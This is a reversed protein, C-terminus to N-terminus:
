PAYPWLSASMFSYSCKWKWPRYNNDLWETPYEKHAWPNYCALSEQGERDGPTQELEHGNFQHHWGVMENETAGKEEQEWNKGADPQKGILSSVPDDEKVFWIVLTLHWRMLLGMWVWSPPSQFLIHTGPIVKSHSRSGQTMYTPCQLLLM